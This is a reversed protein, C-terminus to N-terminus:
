DVWEAYWNSCESVYSGDRRCDGDRGSNPSGVMESGEKQACSANKIKIYKGETESFIIIGLIHM